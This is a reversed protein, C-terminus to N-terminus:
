LKQIINEVCQLGGEIWAQKTSFAEGVVYVGKNPNQIIKSVKSSDVNPRWHHAGVHWLHCKFYHPEPITCSPYLISLERRIMSKIENDSKLIRKRKNEYFPTIDEGDTYSIMILGSNVDVPIIHRLFSNTTIRNMTDFWVKGSKNKPYQAYIRLLPASYVDQIHHKIPKLVDFPRIQKAKVAFIVNKAKVDFMKKSKVDEVNCLFVSLNSRIEKTVQKVSCNLNFYVNSKHKQHMKELLNSFGKKLIYYTNGIFDSEISRLSDYANMECIESYYGFIHILKKSLAYGKSIKDIYQKLTLSQLVKPNTKKSFSIINKMIHEFTIHADKFFKVNGSRTYLFDVEENLAVKELNYKKILDCLLTHKDHFRAGGIEYNPNHHTLLRGGYYNRDDFLAISKKNGYKDILKEVTYMGTIGGGVIVYDYHVEKPSM